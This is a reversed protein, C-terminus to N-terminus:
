FDGYFVQCCLIGKDRWMKVVRDRDDFVCAVNYYPAIHEEYIESKVIDDGRRDGEKRFIVDYDSFPLNTDLWKKTEEKCVDTGERGSVFIIDYTKHMAALVHSMRPDFKDTGVKAYNFPSRGTRLAITGDIDCLVVYPKSMDAEKILREDVYTIKRKSM